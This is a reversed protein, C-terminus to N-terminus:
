YTVESTAIFEPAIQRQKYQDLANGRNEADIEGPERPGLLDAPNAVQAALNNQYACGFNSYHRNESNKLIDDPWRGCQDTSARMRPYVIRLPAAVDPAGSSYPVTVINGAPVGRAYLYAAIDHAVASAAASNAAGAPVMISVPAAARRDYHAIYGAVVARHVETMRQDGVGVPLDLIEDREAVVIPHNTRYDDPVSGVTISDRKACGTLAAAVGIVLLARPASLARPRGASSMKNFTSRM